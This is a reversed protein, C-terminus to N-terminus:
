PKVALLPTVAKELNAATVPTGAPWLRARIVGQTDIVYTMPLVRPQHFDNSPATEAMLAPYHFAAMVKRVEDVDKPDDEDLGVVVVGRTAYQKAFSDLAPMEARCPECWTAWLNLVVVKGKLAALDFAKGDLAAGKLAPAADGADLAASAAPLWLMALCLFLARM